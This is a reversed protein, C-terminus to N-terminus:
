HLDEKLYYLRTAWPPPTHKQEPHYKLDIILTVLSANESAPPTRPFTYFDCSGRVGVALFDSM